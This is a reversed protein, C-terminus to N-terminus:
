FPCGPFNGHEAMFEEAVEFDVGFENVLKEETVMWFCENAVTVAIVDLAKQYTDHYRGGKHAKLEEHLNLWTQILQSLPTTQTSM